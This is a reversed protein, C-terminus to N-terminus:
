DLVIKFVYYEYDDESVYPNTWRATVDVTDGIMSWVPAFMTNVEGSQNSRSSANATPVEMGDFGTIYTTDYSVYILDDTLGRRIFYGLTDGMYWYHSSEWEVRCNVVPNASASDTIFGTLRQLTQWNGMDVELHYYGNNDLDLDIHKDFYYVDVRPEDTEIVSDDVPELIFNSDSCGITMLFLISIFGFKKDM